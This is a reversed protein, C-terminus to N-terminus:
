IGRKNPNACADLYKRSNGFASLSCFNETFPLSIAQPVMPLAEVDSPKNKSVM